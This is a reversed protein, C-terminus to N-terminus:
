LIEVYHLKRSNKTLMMLGSECVQSSFADHYSLTRKGSQLFYLHTTSPVVGLPHGGLDALATVQDYHFLLKM